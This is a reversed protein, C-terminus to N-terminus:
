IKPLNLDAPRVWINDVAGVLSQIPASSTHIHFLTAAGVTSDTGARLIGDRGKLTPTYGPYKADTDMEIHLHKNNAGGGYTGTGGLQGLITDTTVAMGIKLSKDFSDLHFYRAVITPHTQGTVHNYVDNYEVIVVNGCAPGYGFNIVKGIGSGYITTSGNTPKCDHGYHVANSLRYTSRMYSAYGSCKYGATVKSDGRFPLILKQVM